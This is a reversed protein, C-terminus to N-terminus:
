PVLLDSHWLVYWVFKLGAQFIVVDWKDNKVDVLWLAPPGVIFGSGSGRLEGPDRVGEEVNVKVEGGLESDVERAEVASPQDM